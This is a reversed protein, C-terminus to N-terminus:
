KYSGFEVADIELRALDPKALEAPVGNRVLGGSGIVLSNVTRSSLIASAEFGPPTKPGATLLPVPPVIPSM